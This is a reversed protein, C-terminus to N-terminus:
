SMLFKLCNNVVKEPSEKYHKECVHLVEYGSEIIDIDRQKERRRNEPTNKHFYVGDFEIIKRKNEVFFDPLIFRKKLPLRFEHNKGTEDKTKNKQNFQAFYINNENIFEKNLKDLIKWFMDQSIKSFNSKKYSLLWKKQREKWIEFGKKEGNKDICKELSFTSQREKYQEEAEEITDCKNAWYQFQTETFASFSWPETKRRSHLKHSNKKQDFSIKKEIEVDSLVSDKLLWFEKSYRTNQKVKKEAGEKSLGFLEMYYEVSNLPLDRLKNKVNEAENLSHVYSFNKLLWYEKQNKAELNVRDNKSLFVNEPLFALQRISIIEKNHSACNKNSCDKIVYSDILVDFKLKSKCLNCKPEGKQKFNFSGYSFNNENKNNLVKIGKTNRRKSIWFSHEEVGYGRELWFDLKFASKHKFKFQKVVRWGLTTLRTKEDLESLEKYVVGFEKNLAETNIFKNEKKVFEKLEKIGIFYENFQHYYM